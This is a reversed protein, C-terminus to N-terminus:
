LIGGIDWPFFESGIFIKYILLIVLVFILSLTEIGKWFLGLHQIFFCKM